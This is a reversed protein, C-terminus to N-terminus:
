ADERKLVDSTLFSVFDGAVKASSFRAEIEARANAGLEECLSPDSLLRACADAMAAADDKPVLLGNTGDVVIEPIGGVDTAVTAVGVSLSELVALPFNEFRSAVVAVAHQRRMQDIDDKSCLGKYDVRAQVETPLAALADDMMLRGGDPKDVGRDPGVFTLYADAGDEVLKRFASLILDGGKIRDFRGVFLISKRQREDLARLDIAPKKDVANPIVANPIGPLGYHALTKTMVNQSPAVIGDCVRLAEGEREIRGKNVMAAADNKQLPSLMFWPGHLVAVIPINLKKRLYRVWGQTEEIALVEIGHTDIAVQVADAIQDALVPVSAIDKGLKFSIREALTWRRPEPFQVAPTDDPADVHSTIIVVDHGLEKLGVAMSSVATTIGNATKTGPWSPTVLGIKM